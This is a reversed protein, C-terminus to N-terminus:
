GYSEDPGLKMTMRDFFSPYVDFICLKKKLIEDFVLQKQFGKIAFLTGFSACQHYSEPPHVLLKMRDFKPPYFDLISFFINETNKM